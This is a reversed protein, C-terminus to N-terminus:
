VAEEFTEIADANGRYDDVIQQTFRTTANNM